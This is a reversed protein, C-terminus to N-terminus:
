GNSLFCKAVLMNPEKSISIEVIKKTDSENAVRIWIFESGVKRQTEDVIFKAVAM